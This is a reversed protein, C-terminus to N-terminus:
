DRRRSHLIERTEAFVGADAIGVAALGAGMGIEGVATGLRSLADDTAIPTRYVAPRPVGWHDCPRRGTAACCALEGVM